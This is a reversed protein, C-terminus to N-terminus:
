DTEVRVADGPRAFRLVALLDPLALAVCGATPAFDRRAVHLFIASGRGDVVPADNYGLTVIVDYLPDDRWLAESHGPYPLRVARNYAPDGPEDCWGDARGIPRRPLRTALPALRDARFLVLRM